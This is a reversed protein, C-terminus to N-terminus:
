TNENIQHWVNPNNPIILPTNYGFTNNDDLTNSM